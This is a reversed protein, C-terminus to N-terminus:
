RVEPWVFRVGIVELVLIISGFVHNGLIHFSAIDNNRGHMHPQTIITLAIKWSCIVPPPGPEDM